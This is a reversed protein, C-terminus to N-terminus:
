YYDDDAWASYGPAYGDGPCLPQEYYPLAPPGFAVTIRVQAEATVSVMLLAIAFFLMRLSRNVRM